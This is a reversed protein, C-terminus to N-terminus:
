QNLESEIPDNSPRITKVMQDLVQDGRRWQAVLKTKSTDWAVDIFEETAENVPLRIPAPFESETLENAIPITTGIAQNMTRIRHQGLESRRHTIESRLVSQSAGLVALLVLVVLLLFVAGRRVKLSKRFTIM